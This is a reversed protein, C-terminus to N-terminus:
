PILKIIAVLLVAIAVVTGLLWKFTAFPIKGMEAMINGMNRAFMEKTLMTEKIIAMDSELMRLRDKTDDGNGGDGNSGRKAFEDAVATSIASELGIASPHKSPTATQNPTRNSLM